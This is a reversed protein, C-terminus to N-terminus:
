KKIILFLGVAAAVLVLPSIQMPQVNSMTNQTTGRSGLADNLTSSNQFLKNGFDMGGQSMNSVIDGVKPAVTKIKQVFGGIKPAMQAVASGIKALAAIAM